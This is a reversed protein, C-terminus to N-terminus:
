ESKAFRIKALFSLLMYSGVFMGLEFIMSSFESRQFNVSQSLFVLYLFYNNKFLLEILYTFFCLILPFIVVGSFLFNIFSETFPTFAYGMMYEQSPLYVEKAFDLALTDPKQGIFLEKPIFNLIFHFYSGGPFQVQYHASIYYQLTSIPYIFEGLANLLKINLDADANARYIGFAIISCVFVASLIIIKFPLKFGRKYLLLLIVMIFSLMIERRSGILLLTYFYLLVPIILMFFRMGTMNKKVIKKDLLMWFYTIILYKLYWGSQSVSNVLELRSNQGLQFISLNRSQYIFFLSVAWAVIASLFFSNSYTRYKKSQLEILNQINIAHPRILSFSVIFCWVATCYIFADNIIRSDVTFINIDLNHYLAFSVFFYFPAFIVFLGDFWVWMKNRIFYIVTLGFFLTLTWLVTNDFEVNSFFALIFLGGCGIVGYLYALLVRIQKSEM